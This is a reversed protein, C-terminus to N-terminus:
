KREIKNNKGLGGHDRGEGVSSEQGLCGMILRANGQMGYHTGPGQATVERLGLPSRSLQEWHGVPIPTVGPCWPQPEGPVAQLPVQVPHGRRQRRLKPDQRGKHRQAGRTKQLQASPKEPPGPLLRSNSLSKTERHEQRHTHLKKDSLMVIIVHNNRDLNM